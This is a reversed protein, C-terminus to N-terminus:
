RNIKLSLETQLSNTFCRKQEIENLNELVLNTQNEPMYVGNEIKYDSFLLM